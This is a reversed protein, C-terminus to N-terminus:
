RISIRSSDELVFFQNFGQFYRLLGGSLDLSLLGFGFFCFDLDVEESFDVSADGSFASHEVEQENLEADYVM